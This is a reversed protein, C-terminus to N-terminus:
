AASDLRLLSAATAGIADPDVSTQGIVELPLPDGMDFPVDTGLVLRGIGIVSALFDLQAPAHTITDMYFRDLYESPKRDLSVKPEERVKFAHDFRGIQYPLYGGAHVLV